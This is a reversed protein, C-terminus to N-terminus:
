VQSNFQQFQKKIELFQERSVPKEGYWTYEFNFTLLIFMDNFPKGTIETLYDTNTKNIRWEIYGKDSLKKLAQLYQLRTALRYDGNSIAKEIADAFSIGHIDNQSLIYKQPGKNSRGFLGGQGMGTIKIVFYVIIAISLVILVSWVTTIGEKTRLLQGVKWWVWSWFKEWLSQVPEQHINYQFDKNDKFEKLANTNFSRSIM